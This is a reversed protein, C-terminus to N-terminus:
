EPGQKGAKDAAAITANADPLLLNEKLAALIKKSIFPFISRPYEQVNTTLRGEWVLQDQQETLELLYQSRWMAVSSPYMTGDPGTSSGTKTYEASGMPSIHLMADAPNAAIVRRLNEQTDDKQPNGLFEYHCSLNAKELGPKVFWLVSEIYSRNLMSGEAVILLQRYQKQQTNAQYTQMWIAQNSPNTVKCSVACALLFAVGCLRLFLTM